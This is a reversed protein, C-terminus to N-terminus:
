NALPIYNIVSMDKVPYSHSVTSITLNKVFRYVDIVTKSGVGASASGVNGTFITKNVDDMGILSASPKSYYTNSYQCVGIQIKTVFANEVILPESHCSGEVSTISTNLDVYKKIYDSSEIAAIAPLSANAFISKCVNVDSLSKMIGDNNFFGSSFVSNLITDLITITSESFLESPSTIKEIQEKYNKLIYLNKFFSGFMTDEEMNCTLSESFTSADNLAATSKMVEKYIDKDQFVYSNEGYTKYDNLWLMHNLTSKPDSNVVTLLDNLSM